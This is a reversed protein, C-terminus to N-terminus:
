SAAPGRLPATLRRVSDVDPLADILAGLAAARDRGLAPEALLRFKESLEEETLPHGPDGRARDVRVELRRGDMTTITVAAGLQQPYAADFAPDITVRVRDAL